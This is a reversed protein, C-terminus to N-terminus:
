LHSVPEDTVPHKPKLITYSRWQSQSLHAGSCFLSDHFVFGYILCARRIPHQWPSGASIAPEPLNLFSLGRDLSSSARVHDMGAKAPADPQLRLTMITRRKCPSFLITLVLRRRSGAIEASEDYATRARLWDYIPGPLAYRHIPCCGVPKLFRIMRSSAM